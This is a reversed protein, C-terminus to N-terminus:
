DDVRSSSCRYMRQLVLSTRTSLSTFNMEFEWGCERATACVLRILTWVVSLLKGKKKKRLHKMVVFALVAGAVLAALIGLVIGVM